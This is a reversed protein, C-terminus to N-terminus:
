CQPLRPRQTAVQLASTHPHQLYRYCQHDNATRMRKSVAPATAPAFCVEPRPTHVRSVGSSEAENHAQFTGVVAPPCHWFGSQGKGLGVSGNCGYGGATHKHGKVACETLMLQTAYKKVPGSSTNRLTHHMRLFPHDERALSFNASGM